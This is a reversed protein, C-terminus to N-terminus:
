HVMFRLMFRVFMMFIKLSSSSVPMEFDDASAGASFGGIEGLEYYVTDVDRGEGTYYDAALLMGNEDFIFTVENEYFLSAAFGSYDGAYNWYFDGLAENDDLSIGYLAPDPIIKKAVLDNVVAETDYTFTEIYLDGYGAVDTEKVSSKLSMYEPYSPQPMLETEEYLLEEFVDKAQNDFLLSFDLHRNFQPFYMFLGKQTAYTEMDLFFVKSSSFYETMIKGNEDEIQRMSVKYESFNKTNESKMPEYLTIAGTREIDAFFKETKTESTAGACISFVSTLVLIMAFVLSLKKM